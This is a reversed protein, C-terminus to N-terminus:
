KSRKMIIFPIVGHLLISIRFSITAWSTSFHRTKRPIRLNWLTNLLAWSQVVLPALRIDNENPRYKIKMKTDELHYRGKQHVSWFETHM